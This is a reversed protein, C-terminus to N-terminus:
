RLGFSPRRSLRLRRRTLAGTRSHTGNRAAMQFRLPANECLRAVPGNGTSPAGEASSGPFHRTGAGPLLAVRLWFEEIGRIAETFTTLDMPKVVYCNANLDYAANVDANADSTTLVIVTLTRLDPDKKIERLVDLGTTGPLNLDLLVLEPRLSGAYEGQARLYRLARSGESMTLIKKPIPGSMLIDAILWSDGPSDEVLLIQVPRNRQVM